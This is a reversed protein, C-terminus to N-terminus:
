QDSAPYSHKFAWRNDAARIKAIYEKTQEVFNEDHLSIFRSGCYSGMRTPVVLIDSGLITFNITLYGWQIEYGDKCETPGPINFYDCINELLPLLIQDM